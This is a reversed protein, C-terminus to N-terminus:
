LKVGDIFLSDIQEDTLKLVQQMAGILPHTREIESAYEWEVQWARNGSLVNEVDDLLNEQLLILRAQRATMSEPIIVPPTYKAVIVGDVVTDGIEAGEIDAYLDPLVDLSDVMITNDVIGNKILLARM